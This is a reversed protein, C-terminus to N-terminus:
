QKAVNDNPKLFIFEKSDQDTNTNKKDEEPKVTAEKPGDGVVKLTTEQKDGDRNTSKALLDPKKTKKVFSVPIFNVRRRLTIHVDEKKHPKVTVSGVVLQTQKMVPRRSVKIPPETMRPVPVFKRMASKKGVYTKYLSILPQPTTKPSLNIKITKPPMLIRRESPKDITPENHDKKQVEAICIVLLSLLIIQFFFFLYFIYLITLKQILCSSSM